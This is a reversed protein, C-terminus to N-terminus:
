PPFGMNRMTDLAEPMQMIMGDVTSRHGPYREEYDHDLQKAEAYVAESFEDATFVGKSVLLGTLASMECRLLISLERHDAVAKFEGDHAPRTGLQWAAFFRRWKCLRNLMRFQEQPDSM